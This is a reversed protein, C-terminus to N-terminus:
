EYFSEIYEAWDSMFESRNNEIIIDVYEDEDVPYFDDCGTYEQEDDCKGCFLCRQCKSKNM